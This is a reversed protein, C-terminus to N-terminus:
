RREWRIKAWVREYVIYCGFGVVTNALALAWGLEASGTMLMGVMGMTIIGTIQWILAKVVTRKGSEMICRIVQNKKSECPKQTDYIIYISLMLEYM